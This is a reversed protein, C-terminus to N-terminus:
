TSLTAVLQREMSSTAVGNILYDFSVDLAKLFAPLHHAKLASRGIALMRLKEPYYGPADYQKLLDALRHRTLRRAKRAAELRQGIIQKPTLNNM